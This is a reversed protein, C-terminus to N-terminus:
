LSMKLSFRNYTKIGTCFKLYKSM